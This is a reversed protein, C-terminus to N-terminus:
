FIRCVFTFRAGTYSGTEGLPSFTFTAYRWSWKFSQLGTVGFYPKTDQEEIKSIIADCLTVYDGMNEGLQTRKHAYLDANVTADLVRVGGRLTHRDTNGTDDGGGGDPWVQVIPLDGPPLGDTLENYSQVREIGSVTALTAAIGDCLQALTLSM